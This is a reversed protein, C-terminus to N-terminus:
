IRHQVACRLFTFSRTHSFDLSMNSISLAQSRLQSHANPGEKSSKPISGGSWLSRDPTGTKIEPLWTEFLFTVYGGHTPDTFGAFETYLKPSTNTHTYVNELSLSRLKRLSSLLNLVVPGTDAAPSSCSASQWLWDQWCHLSPLTCAPLLAPHSSKFSLTLLIIKQTKSQPLYLALHKAGM